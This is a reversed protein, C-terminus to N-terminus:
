KALAGAQQFPRFKVDGRRKEVLEKIRREMTAFANRLVEPLSEEREGESSDRKVVLEHGPPLTVVIRIQFPNGTNRHRHLSEIAVHCGIMSSCIRELKSIKNLILTETEKRKRINRYSIEPTIQMYVGLQFGKKRGKVEQWSADASNFVNDKVQLLHKQSIM